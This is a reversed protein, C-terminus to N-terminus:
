EDDGSFTSKAKARDIPLDTLQQTFPVGMDKLRLIADKTHDQFKGFLEPSIHEGMSNIHHIVASVKVGHAKLKEMANMLRKSSPMGPTVQSALSDPANLLHFQVEHNKKDINTIYDDHALLDSRTNIKMPKGQKSKLYDNAHSSKTDMWPFPESEFPTGLEKEDDINHHEVPIPSIYKKNPDMLVIGDFGGTGLWTSNQKPGKTANTLAAMHRQLEPQDDKLADFFSDSLESHMDIKPAKPKKTPKPTLLEGNPKVKSPASTNEEKEKKKQQFDIVSKKLSDGTKSRKLAQYRKKYEHTNM